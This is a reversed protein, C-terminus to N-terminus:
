LGESVDEEREAQNMESVSSATFIYKEARNDESVAFVYYELAECMPISIQSKQKQPSQLSRNVGLTM